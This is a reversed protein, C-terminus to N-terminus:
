TGVQETVPTEHFTESRKKGERHKRVRETSSDSIYQRKNWNIVNWREDISRRAIFVAKAEALEQESIRLYFAIETEHFTEMTESKCRLCLIMISHRQMSASLMQVKPDDAFESYLRFWSNAM